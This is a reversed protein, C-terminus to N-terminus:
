ANMQNNKQFSHKLLRIIDDSGFGLNCTHEFRSGNMMQLRVSGFQSNHINANERVACVM